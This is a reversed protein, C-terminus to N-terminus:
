GLLFNIDKGNLSLTWLAGCTAACIKPDSAWNRLHSALLSIAGQQAL